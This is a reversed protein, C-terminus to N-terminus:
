LKDTYTHITTVFNTRLVIGFDLRQVGYSHIYSLFIGLFDKIIEERNIVFWRHAIFPNMEVLEYM